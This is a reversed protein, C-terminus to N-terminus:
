AREYFPNPLKVKVEAYGGKLDNDQDGVNLVIDFGQMTIHRRANTKFAQMSIEDNDLPKLILEEWQEFGAAKLNKVTIALLEPTNPRESIFFVAVGQALAHEYLSLTSLLPEAAGLMCAGTLAQSNRTFSLRELDKYNSLVTEDVDFVVALRNQRPNELQRDLYEKAETIKREIENHYKGSQYYERLQEHSTTHAPTQAALCSLPFLLAVLIAAIKINMTFEKRNLVGLNGCSKGVLFHAVKDQACIM